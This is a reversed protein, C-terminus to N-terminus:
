IYYFAVTIIINETDSDIEGVNKMISQKENKKKPIDTSVFTNSTSQIQVPRYMIYLASLSFDKLNREIIKM